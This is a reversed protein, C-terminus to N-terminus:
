QQFGVLERWTVRRGGFSGSTVPTDRTISEGTGLRVETKVEGSPLQILSFGVIIGQVRVGASTGTSVGTPLLGTSISFANLWSDGGASCGDTSNPITSAVVLTGAQLIPDVFVRESPANAPAGSTVPFDAFWGKNSGSFLVTASTTAISRSNGTGDTVLVRQELNTRAYSSASFDDVVAYVSQGSTSSRDTEGLYRGTAISIVRKGNVTALEPKTSVPQVANTASRATFIKSAKLYTNSNGSDLDFRWLNGEMDGGYVALVTNETLPNDAWGSIRALGIPNADAYSAAQTGSYATTGCGAEAATTFPPNVDCHSIRNLIKGTAAELIYIYGRGRTTDVTGSSQQNNLGSSVIVIWKGDSKRKTIIPDGFSFGVHCDSTKDGVAIAAASHCTGNGVGFEWLGRPAEPNTVDLAFFGKGGSRLGSVLITRWDNLGGCPTSTCIDGIIPSGDVLFKHDYIPANALNRLQPFLMQPVYAWREVGNGTNNGTNFTDDTLSATSMGTLQYYPDRNVDTEFAHLMGGNSGVFVTSRRPQGPTPFQAAPCGTGTGMTCAVFAAYGADTYSFTAGKLYAPKSGVIDGMRSVRARFLDDAANTPPSKAENSRDGRIFDVLAGASAAKQLSNWGPYQPLLSPSFLAQEAVTLGSGDTCPGVSGSVCFSRLLNGTTDSADLTLINRLTWDRSDLQQRASWLPNNSVYGNALDLTFAKLDGNWDSTTYEGAFAFNDGAVPRLNSTAAAAGAGVAKALTNLADVLGDVLEAPNAASYFQGRGNVAAHWLDDLTSPSNAAPVPWAKAGRRVDYFDGSTVSSDNYNKNYTLFGDLGLGITFTTMHQHPADDYDRPRVNDAMSPRLDTKYYYLAVDALSDSSSAGSGEYVGIVNSAATTVASTYGRSYSDTAVGDQNGIATGDIKQGANGNWYGDTSLIAFNPQCSFQVPDDAAPIGTTLPTASSGVKGAYIQGVRALAERLPTAPGPSIAYFKNFWAQKHGGVGATFDAIRLYRSSSISGSSMPNITILGVRFSDDITAFTLGAATKMMQMRTRYYAHWNAFNTMEEAYTCPDAACDTRTSARPYTNGSVINTRTFPAVNLRVFGTGDVGGTYAVVTTSINNVTGGAVTAASISSSPVGSSRAMTVAMTNAFTTLSRATITVSNGTSTASFDPMGGSASNTGNIQNVIITACATTTINRCNFNSGSIITTGVLIRLNNSNTDNATSSVTFTASAFTGSAPATITITEGNINDTNNALITAGVTVPWVAVVSASRTAYYGSTATYNNIAAEIVKAIDERKTANDTGAGATLVGNTMTASGFTIGSQTPSYLRKNSGNESTTINTIGVAAATGANVTVTASASAIGPSAAVTGVFKAYVYSNTGDNLSKDRCTGFTQTLPNTGTCFRITGPFPFNAPNAVYDAHSTSVCRNTGAAATGILDRNNCYETTGITYYYPPGFVYKTNDSSDVGYGYTHDPYNYGGNKKCKTTDTASDGKATCFVRDPYGTVLNINSTSQIGYQDYPVVTWNTTNAANMSPRSSGDYNVGPQYTIAPNYYQKNFQPAMFPPDGLRCGDLGSTINGDSDKSDFCGVNSDNVYDPSYNQGMSGSDDLIFMVNPSTTTVPSALPENSLDTPATWANVMVCLAAAAVAASPLLRRRISTQPPTQPNM